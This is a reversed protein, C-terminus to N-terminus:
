VSTSFRMDMGLDLTRYPLVGSVMLSWLALDDCALVFTYMLCDYIM